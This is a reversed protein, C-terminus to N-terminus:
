VLRRRIRNRIFVFLLGGIVVVVIIIVYIGYRRLFEMLKFSVKSEEEKKKNEQYEKVQSVFQSDTVDTYDTTTYEQCMAFEPNDQCLSMSHFYNEMPLTIEIKRLVENMCNTNNSRITITYHKISDPRGSDIYLIGDEEVHKYYYFATKTAGELDLRINLDNTLNYIRIVFNHYTSTHAGEPGDTYEEFEDYIDYDVNVNNALSSLEMSREMTCTSLANVKVAIFFLIVFLSVLKINKM